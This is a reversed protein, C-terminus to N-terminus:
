GERLMAMAGTSVVRVVEANQHSCWALLPLECTFTGDIEALRGWGRYGCVLCSVEVTVPTTM